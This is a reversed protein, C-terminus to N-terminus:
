GDALHKRLIPEEIPRPLQRALERLARGERQAVGAHQEGLIELPCEEALQGVADSPLRIRLALEERDTASHLREVAGPVLLRPRVSGPYDCHGEGGFSVMSYACPLRTRM